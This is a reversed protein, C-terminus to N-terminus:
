PPLFLSELTFLAFAQSWGATQSVLELTDEESEKNDFSVRVSMSRDFLQVIERAMGYAVWM